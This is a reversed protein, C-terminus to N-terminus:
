SNKFKENFFNFFIGFKGMKKVCFLHKNVNLKEVKDALKWKTYRDTAELVNAECFKYCKKTRGRFEGTISSNYANKLCWM